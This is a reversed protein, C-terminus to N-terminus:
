GVFIEKANDVPYLTDNYSGLILAELFPSPSLVNKM